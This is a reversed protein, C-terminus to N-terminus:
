VIYGKDTCSCHPNYGVKCSYLTSRSDLSEIIAALNPVNENSM